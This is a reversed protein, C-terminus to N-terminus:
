PGKFSEWAEHVGHLEPHFHHALMEAYAAEKNWGDHLMRHEGIILGTRDQGHTCHVLCLDTTPRALCYALQTKAKAVAAPDPAKGPTSRFEDWIAVDGGPQVPVYLVDFGMAQALADSGEVDFNLKIVHVKRGAAIKAIWDWGDQSTIQGSRWISRDVQALNPVDHTFTTPSCSALLLILLSRM